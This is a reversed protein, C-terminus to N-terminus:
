ELLLAPTDLWAKLEEASRHKFSLPKPPYLAGVSRAKSFHHTASAVLQMQYPHQAATCEFRSPALADSDSLCDFMNALDDINDVYKPIHEHILSADRPEAGDAWKTPEVKRLLLQQTAQFSNLFTSEGVNLKHKTLAKWELAKHVRRLDGTALQDRERVEWGEKPYCRQTAGGKDLQFGQKDFWEKCVHENPAFLRVNTFTLLDRLRPEKFQTCTIIIPALTKETAKKLMDAMRKRADETLSEYDDLLVATPGQM